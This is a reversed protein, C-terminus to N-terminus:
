RTLFMSPEIAGRVRGCEKIVYECVHNYQGCFINSSHRLLCRIDCKKGQHFPSGEEKENM